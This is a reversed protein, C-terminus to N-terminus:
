EESARELDKIAARFLDALRPDAGASQPEGRRKRLPVRKTEQVEQVDHEGTDGRQRRKEATRARLQALADEILQRKEAKPSHTGIPLNHPSTPVRSPPAPGVVPHSGTPILSPPLRGNGRYAPAQEVVPHLGSRQAV